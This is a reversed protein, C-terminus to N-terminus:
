SVCTLSYHTQPPSLIESSSCDCSPLYLSALIDLNARQALDPRVYWSQSLDVTVELRIQSRDQDQVDKYNAPDLTRLHDTRDHTAAARHLDSSRSAM